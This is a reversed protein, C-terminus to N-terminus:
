VMNSVDQGGKVLVFTLTAEVRFTKSLSRSFKLEYVNLFSQVGKEDSCFFFIWEFHTETTHLLHFLSPSISLPPPPCSPSAADVHVFDLSTSNLMQFLQEQM